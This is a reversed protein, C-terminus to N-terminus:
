AWGVSGVVSDHEHAHEHREVPCLSYMSIDMKDRLRAFFLSLTPRKRGPLNKPSYICIHQRARTERRIKEVPCAVIRVGLFVCLVASIEARQSALCLTFSIRDM